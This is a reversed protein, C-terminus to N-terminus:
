ATLELARNCAAEKDQYWLRNVEIYGKGADPVDDGAFIATVPCAPEPRRLRHGGAPDDLIMQEDGDDDICHVPCVEM